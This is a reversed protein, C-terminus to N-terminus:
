ELLQRPRTELIQSGVNRTNMGIRIGCRQRTRNRPSQTLYQRIGSLHLYCVSPALFISTERWWQSTIKRNASGYYSGNGMYSDGAPLLAEQFCWGRFDLADGSIGASGVWEHRLLCVMGRGSEPTYFPFRISKPKPRPQLFGESVREASAAAICVTARRYLDGMGSIENMKGDEDDQIICLADIWIYPIRIKRNTVIADQITQGLEAMPIAMTKEQLNSKKTMYPQDEGWCYSLAVYRARDGPNSLYLRPPQNGDGVDIVRSPLLPCTTRPCCEHKEECERIWDQAQQFVWDSRVGTPSPRGGVYTAAPNGLSRETDQETKCHRLFNGEETVVKFWIVAVKNEAGIHELKKELFPHMLLMSNSATKWAKDRKKPDHFDMFEWVFFTWVAEIDAIWETDAIWPQNLHM